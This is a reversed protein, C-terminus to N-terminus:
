GPARPPVRAAIRKALASLIEACFDVGSFREADRLGGTSFVNVEIIKAGIFDVGVLFLGDRRLLPSLAEIAELMQPSIIAPAARGGAHLNSRFDGAAPIRAIAAPHGELALLRGELVVVRTDGAEAGPVCAQAIGYDGRTVVDALGRLNPSAADVFFVDRGRSGALPKFVSSGERGRVYAMLEAPDRSIVTEPRHQAPLEALYLKSRARMLGEPDNVVTVGRDRLLRGILLASDHAGVPDRAPNTRIMLGDCDDLCVREPNRSHLAETFAGIQAAPRALVGRADLRNEANLTLADVGIVWLEAGERVASAALMATTMTPVLDGISNVLMALKM